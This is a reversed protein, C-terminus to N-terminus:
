NICVVILFLGKRRVKFFVFYENVMIDKEEDFVDDYSSMWDLLLFVVKEDYDICGM